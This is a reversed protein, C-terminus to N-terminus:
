ETDIIMKVIDGFKASIASKEFEDLYSKGQESCLCLNADIPISGLFKINSLDCLAKGGGSSFINTCESCHPCTYGSMNEVLGLIPIKGKTCFTIERRVDNCAVLQPTTVLIAGDPEKFQRICEVLSIHEDSTGPPTDIILYDLEGWNVDNLFQRIMAHKKPGRWIVASNKNASLFAISMVYLERDERVKVPTWSKSSKTSLSYTM